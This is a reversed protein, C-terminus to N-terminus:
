HHENSNDDDDNNEGEGGPKGREHQQGDGGINRHEHLLLFLLQHHCFARKAWILGHSRDVFVDMAHEYELLAMEYQHHQLFADGRAELRISEQLAKLYPATTTTTSTAASFDTYNSGSCRGDDDLLISSGSENDEDNSVATTTSSSVAAAKTIKTM